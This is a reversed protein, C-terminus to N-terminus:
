FRVGWLLGHKWKQNYEVAKVGLFGMGGLLTLALLTVLLKRQGLQAARVAWAMTFSSCLLIVTNVGGLTKDLYKHAYIFIEPHHARYYAYACFLGGFLLIETVLFLWMGLKASDKQQEMDAFHHQLNPDAHEVHVAPRTAM